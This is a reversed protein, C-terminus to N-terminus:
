FRRGTERGEQSVASVPNWSYFTQGKSEPGRAKPSRDRTVPDDHRTGVLPTLGGPSLTSAREERLGERRGDTLKPPTTRHGRRAGQTESARRGSCSARGELTSGEGESGGTKTQHRKFLYLLLGVVTPPPNSASIRPSSPSVPGSGVTEVSGTLRHFRTVGLAGSRAM